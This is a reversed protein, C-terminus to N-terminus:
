HPRLEREHPAPKSADRLEPHLVRDFAEDESKSHEQNRMMDPHSHWGLLSRLGIMFRYM